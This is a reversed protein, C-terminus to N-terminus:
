SLPCGRNNERDLREALALIADRDGTALAANVQSIVQATTLSFDVDPSASNLLSAVAARFLIQAAGEVGPGGGFELAQLLTVNDMNLANPVDFVSELTQGTTFGVWSDHHQPVKWFGPTCGEFVV